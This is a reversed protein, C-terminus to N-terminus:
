NGKLWIRWSFSLSTTKKKKKSYNWGLLNYNCQPRRTHACQPSFPLTSVQTESLQEGYVIKAVTHLPPVPKPQNNKKQTSCSKPAPTNGLSFQKRMNEALTRHGSRQCNYNASIASIIQILMGSWHRM